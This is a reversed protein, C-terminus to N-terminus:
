AWSRKVATSYKPAENQKVIYAGAIGGAGNFATTMAAAFVRKWQGVINNALYANLAAWNSVYAGVVFYAGLYRVAVQDVYGMMSFEIILLLANVVIVPGRIGYKDGVFSSILAQIASWYYTAASLLIAKNASFGMGDKLILTLFYSMSMSVVNQIFFMICFGWIEPHLDDRDRIIRDMMIRTEDEDFFKFNRNAEEPFDVIWWYTVVSIICTIIGQIMFMWQWGKLGGHGDHHNLGFNVIGGTALICVEGAQLLAFRLQQERRTYWTSILYTVGPYIGAMCMGLLIRLAIMQRWTKVFASSLTIVGFWFTITSFWRRPGFTRTAVTGPLHFAIGTITFVIISLALHNGHDLDLDELMSTVVASSIIGSDILNWACLLGAISCLRLDLILRLRKEKMLQEVPIWVDAPMRVEFDPGTVITGKLPPLVAGAHDVSNVMIVIILCKSIALPNFRSLWASASASPSRIPFTILQIALSGLCGRDKKQKVQQPPPGNQYNMQQPPPGYGPQPPGYGPQPPGYGPQPPGYSQQPYQPAGGGYYQNASM